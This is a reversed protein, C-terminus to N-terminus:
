DDFQGEKWNVAIRAIIDPVSWKKEYVYYHFPTKDNGSPEVYLYVKGEDPEKWPRILNFNDFWRSCIDTGDLEHWRTKDHKENWALLRGEKISVIISRGERRTEWQSGIIFENTMKIREKGRLILEILLDQYTNVDVVYEENNYTKDNEIFELCKKIQSIELDKIHIKEGKIWVYSNM